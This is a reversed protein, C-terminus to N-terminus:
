LTVPCRMGLADRSPQFPPLIAPCIGCRLAIPSTLDTWVSGAFGLDCKGKFHKALGIHHLVVGMIRWDHLLVAVNLGPAVEPGSTLQGEDASPKVSM